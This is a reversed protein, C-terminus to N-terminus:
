FKRILIVGAVVLIIGLVRLFSIPTPQSVLINFHELIMSVIMQGAVILGFTLGPGLKPFALVIVTVYFAGLLGGLWVVTPADKVGSWSVTQKTVLIYMILGLFGVVFSIMSAYVPSELAKGLKTNLGAQIPLFAGSLFALVIWYVKNM